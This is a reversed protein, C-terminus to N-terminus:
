WCEAKSKPPCSYCDLAHSQRYRRCVCGEEYQRKPLSTYDRADLPSQIHYLVAVRYKSCGGNFLGLSSPRWDLPVLEM